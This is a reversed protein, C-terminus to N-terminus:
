HPADWLHYCLYYGAIILPPYGMSSLMSLVWSNNHIVLECKRCLPWAGSWGGDSGCVLEQNGLLDFDENCRFIVVNGERTGEIIREGNPINGYDRCEGLGTCTCWVCLSFLMWLHIHATLMICKPRWYYPILFHTYWPWMVSCCFVVAALVWAAASEHSYRLATSTLHVLNVEASCSTRRGSEMVATWSSMELCACM